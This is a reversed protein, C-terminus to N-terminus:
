KQRRIEQCIIYGLIAFFFLNELKEAFQSKPVNTRWQDLM